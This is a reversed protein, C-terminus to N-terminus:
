SLNCLSEIKTATTDCGCMGGNEWGGMRGKEWEWRLIVNCNTAFMHSDPHNLSFAAAAPQEYEIAWKTVSAGPYLCM